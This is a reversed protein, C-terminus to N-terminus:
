PPPDARSIAPAEFYWLRRCASAWSTWAGARSMSVGAWSTSAGAWSTSAGAQSAVCRGLVDVCRGSVDVRRGSVRRVQGLRRCAQRLRRRAQGFARKSAEAIERGSRGPSITKVPREWPLPPDSRLSAMTKLTKGYHFEFEIM